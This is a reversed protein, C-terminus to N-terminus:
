GKASLILKLILAVFKKIFSVGFDTKGDFIFLIM